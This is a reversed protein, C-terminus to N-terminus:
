NQKWILNPRFHSDIESNWKNKLEWDRLNINFSNVNFIEFTFEDEVFNNVITYNLFFIGSNFLNNPIIIKQTILGTKNVLPIYEKRVAYSDMLLKDGQNNTITLIIQTSSERQQKFKLSIEIQDDRYINSGIKKDVAKITSSILEVFGNNYQGPKFHKEQNINSFIDTHIFELYYNVVKATTGNMITEGSNLLLVRNCITSIQTMDHAVIIVSVGEKLLERLKKICKKQFAVDGVSFVEDLILIEPNMFAFISFALRMYMGSSYNKVPEEIFDAIESFALLDDFIYDVYKKNLGYLSGSLYVNERGSLDPHFGTGIDLISSIKGDIIIKGESPKLIGSLIKLLTSKGSGNAGIIGLTDGKKLEFSVDKLAWFESRDNKSYKKSINKVEIANEEKM